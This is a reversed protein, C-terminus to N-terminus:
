KVLPILFSSDNHRMTLNIHTMVLSSGETRIHRIEISSSHSTTCRCTVECIHLMIPIVNCRLDLRDRLLITGLGWRSDHVVHDGGRSHEVFEM